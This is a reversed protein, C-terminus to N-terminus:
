EGIGKTEFIYADIAKMAEALKTFSGDNLEAIDTKIRWFWTRHPDHRYIMFGKYQTSSSEGDPTGMEPIGPHGTGKGSIGKQLQEFRSISDM